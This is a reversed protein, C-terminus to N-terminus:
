QIRIEINCEPGSGLDASITSCGFTQQWYHQVVYLARHYINADEMLEFM